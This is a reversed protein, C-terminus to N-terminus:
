LEELIEIAKKQFFSKQNLSIKEFLEIAKSREDNKLYALALYWQAPEYFQDSIKIEEFDNSADNLNELSLNSLGRYFYVTDNQITLQNLLQIAEEYNKLEYTQFAKEFDQTAIEGKELPAIINSYPEYYQAFLKQTSPPNNWWWFLVIVLFIAAVGIIWQHIRFTKTPTAIRKELAQLESKLDERGTDEFAIMLDNRLSVENAFEENGMKKDFLSQEEESLKNRLFRDILYQDQNDIPM